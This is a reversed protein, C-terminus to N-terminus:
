ERDPALALPYSSLLIEGVPGRREADGNILSNREIRLAHWGQYLKLIAPHDANSVLVSVGRERLENATSVLREQDPWAFLRANYKRFGNNQHGTIYPPDLYVWDGPKAAGVTAAFDGCHLQVGQLAMSAATLRDSPCVTPRAYRGFPVNFQGAGNVRYMGNFATKNLYVLRAGVRSPVRPRAKRIQDYFTRDHPYGCLLKILDAVNDRVAAYTTVLEKNLDGLVANRPAVAFFLAGGGLFPEYYTGSFGAPRILDGLPALWQKGGPWKLFPRRTAEPFPVVCSWLEQGDVDVVALRGGRLMRARAATPLSHDAPTM